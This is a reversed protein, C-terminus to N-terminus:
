LQALHPNNDNIEIKKKNWNTQMLNLSKEARLKKEELENLDQAQKFIVQELKNKREELTQKQILFLTVRNLTETL